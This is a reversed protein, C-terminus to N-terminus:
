RKFTDHNIFDSDTINFNSFNRNNHEGEDIGKM